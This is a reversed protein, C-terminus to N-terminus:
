EWSVECALYESLVIRVSIGGTEKVAYRYRDPQVIIWDGIQPFLDPKAGTARMFARSGIEPWPEVINGDGREFTQRAWDDLSPLPFVSIHDPEEFKPYLEYAAHGRALKLVVNRVRQSEPQWLPTGDLGIRMSSAIRNQLKIQETLVRQM